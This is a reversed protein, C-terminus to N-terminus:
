NSTDTSNSLRKRAEQVLQLETEGSRGSKLAHAFAFVTKAYEVAAAATLDTKDVERRFTQMDIRNAIKKEALMHEKWGASAKLYASADHWLKQLRVLADIYAEHNQERSTNPSPSLAKDVDPSLAAIAAARLEKDAQQVASVYDTTAKDLPEDQALLMKAIVFLALAVTTKKPTM